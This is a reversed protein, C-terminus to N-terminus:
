TWNSLLGAVLDPVTNIVVGPPVMDEREPRGSYPWMKVIHRSYVDSVSRILLGYRGPNSPMYVRFNYRGRFKVLTEDMTLCERPRYHRRTNADVADFIERALCFKDARTRARRDDLDDLIVAAMLRLSIIAM